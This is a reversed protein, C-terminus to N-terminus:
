LLDSPDEVASAATDGKKEEDKPTKGKKTDAKESELANQEAAEKEKDGQEKAIMSLEAKKGLQIGILAAAANQKKTLQWIMLVYALVYVITSFDLSIGFSMKLLFALILLLVWIAALTNQLSYERAVSWAGRGYLVFMFICIMLALLDVSFGMLYNGSVMNWITMTALLEALFTLLLSLRFSAKEQQFYQRAFALYDKGKTWSKISKKVLHSKTLREPGIAFLYAANLNRLAIDPTTKELEKLSANLAKLMPSATNDAQQKLLKDYASLASGALWPFESNNKRM